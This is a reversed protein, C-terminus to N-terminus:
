RLFYLTPDAEKMKVKEEYVLEGLAEHFLDRLSSIEIRNIKKPLICAFINHMSMEVHTDNISPKLVNIIKIKLQKKQELV